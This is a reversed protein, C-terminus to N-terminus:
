DRTRELRHKVANVVRAGGNDLAGQDYALLFMGCDTRACM